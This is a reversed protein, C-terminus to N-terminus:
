VVDRTAVPTEGRRQLDTPRRARPWPVTKHHDPVSYDPCGERPGPLEVTHTDQADQSAGPVLAYRRRAVGSVRFCELMAAHTPRSLVHGSWTRARVAQLRSSRPRGALSRVRQVMSPAQCGADLSRSIDPRMYYGKYWYMCVGYPTCKSRRTAPGTTGHQCCRSGRMCVAMEIRDRAILVPVPARYWDLPVAPWCHASICFCPPGGERGDM